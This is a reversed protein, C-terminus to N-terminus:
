RLAVCDFSGPHLHLGEEKLEKLGSLKTLRFVRLGFGALLEFLEYPDSGMRGLWGPNFECCTTAIRGESFLLKMGNIAFVESGEIDIKLLNIHTFGRESFFDDLAYSPITTREDSRSALSYNGIGGPRIPFFPVSLTGTKDTVAGHVATVNALENLKVNRELLEFNAKLAEFAYVHGSSGVKLALPITYTGIGAGVDVVTDGVKTKRILFDMVHWEHGGTYFVPKDIVGDVILRGGHRLPVIFEGPNGGFIKETFDIVIGRGPFRIHRLVHAVLQHAHYGM